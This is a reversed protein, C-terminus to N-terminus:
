WSDRLHTLTERAQNLIKEVERSGMPPRPRAEFRVVMPEIEEALQSELGRIKEEDAAMGEKLDAADEELRPIRAEAGKLDERDHLSEKWKADLTRVLKAAAEERQEIRPIEAELRAVEKSVEDAEDKKEELDEALKRRTLAAERVKKEVTGANEAAVQYSQAGLVRRIVQLREDPNQVLIQKMQEQPTFVAYRYVLSEAKPHTPENFGLISVVREKLDSPSLREWEGSTSILCEDQVVDKGKIKLSREIAYETGETEFTVSVRGERRGENLLYSGKLDSFGFLAFELAYLLSSKGSGIDGEILVVGEPLDLTTEEGGSYSRINRLALRRVLM